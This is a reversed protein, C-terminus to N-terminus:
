VYTMERRFKAWDSSKTSWAVDTVIQVIGLALLAIPVWGQIAPMLLAVPILLFPIAKTVIAGSAHMRARTRTTARLYTAYNTKVGPQPRGRGIFWGSFRIGGIRGVMIHGLGHTTGILIGTGLMFVVGNWSPVFESVAIFALGAFAGLVAALTGMWFPIVIRAWAGFAVTDIVGIRDAFEDVLDPDSKVAHVARWYGTARLDPVGGSAIEAENANLV